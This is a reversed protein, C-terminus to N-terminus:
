ATAPVNGRLLQQVRSLLIQATFPKSIFASAFECPKSKTYRSSIGSMALIKMAPRAALVFRALEEGNANPMDLDTVILAIEAGHAEFARIGEAGDAVAIVRYGAEILLTLAIERIALEDDALLILEGQGHTTAYPSTTGQSRAAPTAAPLFARITTGQGVVTQLTIFGHYTEVIGRVTSLGLGTGHGTAKTTFFPEWIRALIEPPIGTGSDGVELMLWAGASAGEIASAAAADLQCNAANLRLTGGLPMADRANVCLNLLVQHIQTPNALIPWLDAPVHTSLVVSKPFTQTIIESVDTLLHKVQVLRPEGGIGHVFGLIQRVLGAGREGSKELIDLLKLDGAATLHNRLLSVAMGIPALVNNLDHSIGAALMGISELRQTRLSQEALKMRETVDRQLAVFHTITGAANRIPAVQWELQFETRDKRYNVTQGNFVEGRVLCDHLRRLVAPDTRPGQLIRPTRGIVDLATYGTMQTFAPNVFLIEPGPASIRADTILISETSQAVASSLLQLEQEAQQRQTIDRVVTVVYDRDLRVWKASFEVPVDLGDNRRHTTTGSLTGTRRINERSAPWGIKAVGPDVDAVNRALFEERTYGLSAAASANCDLFRGTDAEIIELSDSSQDVLTRFLRLGEEARKRQTIDQFAGQVRAISGGPHREAEGCVRVWLQKKAATLIELELDFATGEKMCTTVAATIAGQSAATYMAFLEALRPIPGRPFELIDFIEDSWFARESPVELAWGGTRTIRGAIRILTNKERLADESAKRATIDQAMVVIGVVQGDKDMVPVKDTQVWRPRGARDSIVEVYALKATGSRIVQLDDAYFRAAQEPYIDHAVRGEIEEVTRGAAEAVRQNVRLIVNETDKFWVMAPMLDFLVRLETQQRQMAEEARRRETIDLHMVVVGQRGDATLPTVTLLFWGPGLLSRSAYEVSFHKREGALVARIGAAVRQAETVGEGGATDCFHLYNRGIGHQPGQLVHAGDFHRWAENVSVIIGQADLLAIHAPLANLIAAQRGAENLRLQEQARRLLFTRGDEDVLADVEGATLEELRREAALLTKILAPIEEHPDISPPPASM